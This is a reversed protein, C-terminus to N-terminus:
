GQLAEAGGVIDLLEKTISAQRAKNMRLRLADGLDECNKTASHMALMRASHESTFQEAFTLYMIAQLYRPVLVEFVQQASPEFIYDVERAHNEASEAEGAIAEPELSLFREITPRFTSASIYQSYLLLIEDTQGSLFREQLEHSLRNSREPTIGGSLDTISGVVNWGRKSFYVYGKRGVCYLDLHEKGGHERAFQEAAAILNNNFSGALGRDSTFVVLTTRGGERHEFFPNGQAAPTSALRALLEQIKRTYPRGAMLVSLARRLRAASVMEMARTIQRVNNVTRIRRRLQKINEAM